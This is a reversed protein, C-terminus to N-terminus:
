LFVQVHLDTLIDFKQPSVESKEIKLSKEGKKLPQKKNKDALTTMNSSKIPIEKIPITKKSSKM